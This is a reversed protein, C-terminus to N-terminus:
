SRPRLTSPMPRREVFQEAFYAARHNAVGARLPHRAIVGLIEGLLDAEGDHLDDRLPALRAARHPAEDERDSAVLQGVAYAPLYTLAPL